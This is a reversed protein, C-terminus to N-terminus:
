GKLEFIKWIDDYKNGFAKYFQNMVQVSPNFVGREINIYHSKSIGLKDAMQVQTFGQELRFKKLEDRKM